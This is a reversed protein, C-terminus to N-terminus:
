IIVTGQVNNSYLTEIQYKIEFIRTTEYSYELANIRIVGYLNAIAGKIALVVADKNKFNIIDFWPQGVEPAFFCESLFTRLKTEINLTIADNLRAYSAKGCGFRWDGDSTLSRFIM